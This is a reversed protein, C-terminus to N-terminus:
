RAFQVYNRGALPHDTPDCEKTQWNYKAMAFMSFDWGDFGAKACLEVAKREGVHRAISAIETSTKM